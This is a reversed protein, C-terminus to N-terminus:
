GVDRHDGAVSDQRPGDLLLEPRTEAVTELLEIATLQRPASTLPDVTGLEDTVLDLDRFKRATVFVRSELSGVLRNYAEISRNLSGGMTSVHSGLTALRAYLEQGLALLERANETLAEQQWTFAVTRLLAFLSAPSALVVKARLASELLAPDAALAQALMAESPVFCVVFQPTTEFASWYEKGALAKVHATLSRAHEDLLRPREDPALDDAHLRLYATMPAKADIVLVKEGPLQVVADPRLSQGDAGTVSVQIDFDCRALLGADELVRRLQVEGWAGRVNASQLSGALSQTTRGLEGTTAQVHEMTTRLDAFQSVRDLELAKVQHEVRGLADGLPRLAAATQTDEAVTAELDDIRERLLNRETEVVALDREARMRMTWWTVVAALLAAVLSTTTLTMWTM